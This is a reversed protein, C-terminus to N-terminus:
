GSPAADPRATTAESAHREVHAKFQDLDRQAVKGVFRVLIRAVFRSFAGGKPQGFTQTLRTGQPLPSLGYDVPVVFSVGPMAVRDETTMQEFPRWQVLTQLTLRDGHYCEFASGEQLRGHKKDRVEQRTGGVLVNRHVPDALYDWVLHPPLGIDTQVRLTVQDPPIDVRLSDKRANWVAHMDQVWLKTEGLHEYTETHALLTADFGELALRQIAADTYLCYARLGTQEVVGNKTLRHILNVDSGVLEDRGALKQVVFSGHHVFFKLDLSGINACANCRCTTNMVMLDIARRFAVYTDEIMEVFTQALLPVSSLAYSIVADGATRSIALPPRTHGILLELLSKLVEQAHDLESDSLYATYGTIDAILLHGQQTTSM